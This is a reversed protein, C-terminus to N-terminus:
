GASGTPGGTGTMAEGMAERGYVFPRVPRGSVQGDGVHARGASAPATQSLFFATQEEGLPGICFPLRNFKTGIFHPYGRWLRKKGNFDILMAKTIPPVM